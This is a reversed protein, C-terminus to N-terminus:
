NTPSKTHTHRPKLRKYIKCINERVRHSIVERKIKKSSYFNKIKIYGFKDISRKHNPKKMKKFFNKGIKFLLKGIQDDSLKIPKRRANIM